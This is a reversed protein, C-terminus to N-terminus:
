ESGGAGGSLREHERWWGQAGYAIEDSLYSPTPAQRRQVSAVPDAPPTEPLRKQYAYVKTAEKSKEAQNQANLPAALGAVLSAVLAAAASSSLAALIKM